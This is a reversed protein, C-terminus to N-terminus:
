RGVQPWLPPQLPMQQQQPQPLQQQMLQQPQQLQMQPQQMLQQQQQLQMQPQQLPTLQQQQPQLPMPQHQPQSLQQQQPQSQQPPAPADSMHQPQQQMMQQQQLPLLQQQRDTPQPPAPQQAAMPQPQMPQQQPLPAPAPAFQPQGGFVGPGTQAPPLLSDARPPLLFLSGLCLFLALLLPCTPPPPAPPSPPPHVQSACVQLSLAAPIAALGRIIPRTIDSQWGLSSWIDKWIGPQALATRFATAEAESAFHIYFASSADDVAWQSPSYPAKLPDVHLLEQLFHAPFKSVAPPLRLSAWVTLSPGPSKPTGSFNM